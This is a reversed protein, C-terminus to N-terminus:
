TTSSPRRWPAIFGGSPATRVPPTGKKHRKSLEKFQRQSFSRCTNWVGYRGKTGVMDDYHRQLALDMLGSTKLYSGEVIEGGQDLDEYVIGALGPGWGGLPNNMDVGFSYSKYCGKPDGIALSQHAAPEDGSAREIWVDLGLADRRNMPDGLCYAYLNLGGKEGIPDASLWRGLDQDYARYLTLHLNSGAHYYHGTFGFDCDLNGSLKSRAGYPDYDYRARVTAASDTMERISGLHDRTYYYNGADTGGIRKEGQSYYQRQVTSGTADRQEAIQTGDWVWRKTLTGNLMEAVRRSLGDYTFEYVNAGQTIKVLRNEADWQYTRLGDSLTNGNGDYTFARAASGTVSVSWSKTTTNPPAAYDTAEVTLINPGPVVGVWAQYLNEPPATTTAPQGNVKVVAPEDTAGSVLLKGGGTLSTLRNANDHIASNVLNGQQASTRNGASDYQYSYRQTVTASSSALGLTASTLQDASDYGLTFKTAGDNAFQRQWTSINGEPLYTYDFIPDFIPDTRSEKFLMM